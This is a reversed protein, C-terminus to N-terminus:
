YTYLLKICQFFCIYVICCYIWWQAAISVKKCSASPVTCWLHTSGKFGKFEKCSNLCVHGVELSSGPTYEVQWIWEFAFLVNKFRRCEFHEPVEKMRRKSWITSPFFGPLHFVGVLFWSVIFRVMMRCQLQLQPIKDMLIISYKVYKNSWIAVSADVTPYYQYIIYIYADTFKLKTLPRGSSLCQM